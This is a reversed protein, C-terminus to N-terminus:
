SYPPTAVEDVGMHASQTHSHARQQPSFCSLALQIGEHDKSGEM